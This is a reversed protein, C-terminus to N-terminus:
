IICIRRGIWLAQVDTIANICSTFALLIMHFWAANVPTEDPNEIYELFAKLFLTPVFTLAGSIMAWAAQIVLDRKFYKM